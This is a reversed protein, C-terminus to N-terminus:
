HGTKKMIFIVIASGIVCVCALPIYPIDNRSETPPEEPAPVDDEVTTPESSDTLEKAGMAKLREKELEEQREKEEKELREQEEKALREKEAIIDTESLIYETLDVPDLDLLSDGDTTGVFIQKYDNGEREYIHYATDPKPMRVKFQLYNESVTKGDAFKLVYTGPFGAKGDINLSYGLDLEYDEDSHWSELNWEAQTEQNEDVFSVKMAEQNDNSLNLVKGPVKNVSSSSMINLYASEPVGDKTFHTLAELAEETVEPFDHSYQKPAPAPSSPASPIAPSPSPTAPVPASSPSSGGFVRELQAAEAAAVDGRERIVKNIEEVEEPTTLRETGDAFHYVGGIFRSYGPTLLCGALAMISLISLIKTKM